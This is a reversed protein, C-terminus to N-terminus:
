FNPRYVELKKKNSSKFFKSTSTNIFGYLARPYSAEACYAKGNINLYMCVHKSGSTPEYIFIDGSQLQSENYSYPVKVWKDPHNAFYTWQKGLTRPVDPDVGSYRCVTGIFVDCSAGTKPGKGWSNHEPYVQDLAAKYASTPKSGYTSKATGNPWALQQAVIALKQSGTSQRVTFKKNIQTYDKDWVNLIGVYTYTGPALTGFKISADVKSIDFSTSGVAVEKAIVWQGSSNMVGFKASTIYQSCDITGKLSFSMKELISEPYTINRQSFTPAADPRVGMNAKTLTASPTVVTKVVNAAGLKVWDSSVYYYKSGSRVKYWMTGSGKVNAWSVVDVLAKKKFTGKKKMKTGPGVRYNLAETTIGKVTNYKISDVKSVKIYGKKGKSNKVYYWRYKSNTKNKKVFVEKIITLKANNKVKVVKKSSTSAKARLYVGKKANVKASATPAQDAAYTSLQGICIFALATLFIVVFRLLTRNNSKATVFFSRRGWTLSNSTM